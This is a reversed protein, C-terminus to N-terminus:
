IMNPKHADHFLHWFVINSMKLQNKNRLNLGCYRLDLQWLQYFAYIYVLRYFSSKSM